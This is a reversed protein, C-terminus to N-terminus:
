GPHLGVGRLREGAIRADPERAAAEWAAEGIGVQDANILAARTAGNDIVIAHVYLRDRITAEPQGRPTVDVRAAGVRLEGGQGSAVQPAVLALLLALVRGPRDRAIMGM